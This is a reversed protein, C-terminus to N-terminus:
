SDGSEVWDAVESYLAEWSSLRGTGGARRIVLVSNEFVDSMYAPVANRIWCSKLDREM